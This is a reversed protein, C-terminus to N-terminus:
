MAFEYFISTTTKEEDDFSSGTSEIGVCRLKRPEKKEVCVYHGSILWGPRHFPYSSKTVLVEKAELFPQVADEDFVTLEAGAYEYGAKTWGELFLPGGTNGIAVITSKKKDGSKFTVESAETSLVQVRNFIPKGEAFHLKELYEVQSQLASNTGCIIVTFIIVVATSLLLAITSKKM